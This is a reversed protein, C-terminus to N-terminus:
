DPSRYKLGEGAMSKGPCYVYNNRDFTRQGNGDTVAWDFDICHQM